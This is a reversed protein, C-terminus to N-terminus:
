ECMLVLSLTQSDELNKLNYGTYYPFQYERIVINYILSTGCLLLWEIHEVLLLALSLSLSLLFIFLFYNKIFVTIYTYM